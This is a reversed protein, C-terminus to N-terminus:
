HLSQGAHVAGNQSAEDRNSLGGNAPTKRRLFRGIDLVGAPGFLGTESGSGAEGGIGGSCPGHGRDRARMKQHAAIRIARPTKSRRSVYRM